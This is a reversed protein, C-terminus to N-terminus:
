LAYYIVTCPVTSLHSPLGDEKGTAFASSLVCYHLPRAHEKEMNSPQCPVTRPVPSDLWPIVLVGM